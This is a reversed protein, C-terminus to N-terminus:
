LADLIALAAARAGAERAIHASSQQVRHRLADDALFNELIRAWKSGINGPAIGLKHARRQNDFQDHARPLLLMPVGARWSQALAGIGGGHLIARARPLVQELPAFRRALIRDDEWARDVGLILARAGLARAGLAADRLWAEGGCLSPACIVVPAAGAELFRAIEPALPTQNELFCFGTARATPRAGPGCFLPSWLRLALRPSHADDWLANDGPPLGLERRLAQVPRLWLGFERRLLRLLLGNFRPFNAAWPAVPLAPALAGELLSLPSVASSIWKLGRRQAVIPGAFSLTHSVLAEANHALEDLAAVGQRLAPVLLQRIMWEDGRAASMMRKQGALAPMEPPCFAWEVGAAEIAPRFVTATAVVPQAGLVRLERAIAIYPMVDGRAGFTSLLIRPM